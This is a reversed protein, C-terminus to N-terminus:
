IEREHRVAVPSPFADGERRSSEIEHKDGHGQKRTRMPTRDGMGEGEPSREGASQGFVRHEDEEGVDARRHSRPHQEKLLAGGDVLAKGFAVDAKAADVGRKTGSESCRRSNRGNKGGGREESM